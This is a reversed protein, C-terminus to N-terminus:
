RRLGNAGDPFATVLRLGKPYSDEATHQEWVTRIQPRRGSPTRLPGDVEYQVNGTATYSSGSLTGEAGHEELARALTQWDETTFGFGEFFRAKGGGRPHSTNLLYGTVKSEEVYCEESDAMRELEDSM